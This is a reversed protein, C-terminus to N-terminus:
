PRRPGSTSAAHAADGHLLGIAARAHTDVQGLLDEADLGVDRHHVLHDGRLERGLPGARVAGLGAGLDLTAAGLRPALLAGAAGALARDARRLPPAPADRVAGLRAVVRLPCGLFHNTEREA